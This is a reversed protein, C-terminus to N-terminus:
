IQTQKPLCSIYIWDMTAPRGVTQQLLPRLRYNVMVLYSVARWLEYTSCFIFISSSVDIALNLDGGAHYISSLGLM